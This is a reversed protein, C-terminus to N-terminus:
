YTIMLRSLELDSSSTRLSKRSPSAGLAKRSFRGWVVGWTEGGGNAARSSQDLAVCWECTVTEREDRAVRWESTGLARQWRASERLEKREGEYLSKAGLEKTEGQYLFAPM